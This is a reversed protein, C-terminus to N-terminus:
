LRLGFNAYICKKVTVPNGTIFSCAYITNQSASSCGDDCLVYEVTHSLSGHMSNNKESAELKMGTNHACTRELPAFQCVNSSIRLCLLYVYESVKVRMGIM